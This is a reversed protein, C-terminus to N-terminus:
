NIYIFHPGRDGALLQTSNIDGRFDLKDLLPFRPIYFGPSVAARRPAALPSPDDDSYMDSYVTLWRRLGPVRYSFDFGSKRDGPDDRNLSNNFTDSVSGFNRLLSQATFPHGVGAWISSRTFGLELNETPHFSIKQLNFFPRQPFQHGSLKSFLFEGKVHGLWHLVGPLIWPSTRSLRLMYMPDANDSIMLPGAQTPGLWLSQK